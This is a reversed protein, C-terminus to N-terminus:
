YDKITDGSNTDGSNRQFMRPCIIYPVSNNLPLQLPKGHYKSKPYVKIYGVGPRGFVMATAVGLSGFDHFTQANPMTGYSGFLGLFGNMWRPVISHLRTNFDLSVLHFPWTNNGPGVDFSFDEFVSYHGPDRLGVFNWSKKPCKSWHAIASGPQNSMEELISYRHAFASDYSREPGFGDPSVDPYEWGNNDNPWMDHNGNMPVWPVSDGLSDIIAIFDAWQTQLASQSLDGSVVVLKINKDNESHHQRIWSVANHLNTPDQAAGGIHPDTIVAVTFTSEGTGYDGVNTWIRLGVGHAM